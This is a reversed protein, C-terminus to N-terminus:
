SGEAALSQDSDYVVRLIVISGEQGAQNVDIRPYGSKKCTLIFHVLRKERQSRSDLRGEIKLRELQRANEFVVQGGGREGIPFTPSRVKEATRGAHSFTGRGLRNALYPVKRKHRDIEAAHIAGGARGRQGDCQPPLGGQLGGRDVEIM